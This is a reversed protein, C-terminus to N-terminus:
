VTCGGGGGGATSAQASVPSFIAPLVMAAAIPAARRKNMIGPKAKHLM